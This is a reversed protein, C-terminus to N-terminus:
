AFLIPEKSHQSQDVFTKYKEEILHRKIKMTPTMLGEEITWPTDVVILQKMREHAELKSNVQELTAKFDQELDQQNRQKAGEALVCVAVPQPLGSGMVCLQEIHTNESLLSEIPAPAVYKGKSTKFIEKVRGTIKLFGNSDISGRDGTKLYGDATLVEETKEPEKYYGQMVAQSRFWIEGEDTIKIEGEPLGVGVSGKLRANHRNICGYAFNETLGYGELIQLGIRDFWDMVPVPLPAAGSIILRAQDLGLASKLKRKILTSILPLKLLKDLKAQPLKQLIGQQFKVWLRPVAFFITPRVEKINEAFTDLSEVFSITTCRFLATMEVLFREAVHSLPLFSVVRDQPGIDFINCGHNAAFSAARFTHVVGKPFGTTGSTYIITMLDDLQPIHDKKLPATEALLSEWEYDVKTINGEYPFGITKVDAPIGAAVEKPDDLKGTFLLKSESHELVYRTTEAQQNPYLPVSIAGSMMIALDAMFWHACNKSVLAVRDGPQVGLDKLAQAMRRVEDGVRSWTYETYVGAIPQRLFVRNPEEREWKYFRELPTDLKESM